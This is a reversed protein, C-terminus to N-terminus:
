GTVKPPCTGRPIEECCLDWLLPNWGASWEDRGGGGAVCVCM